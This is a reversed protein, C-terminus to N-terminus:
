HIRTESGPARPAEGESPEEALAELLKGFAEPELVRQAVEIYRNLQDAIEVKIQQSWRKPFRRSLIELRAKAPGFSAGKEDGLEVVERSRSEYKDEACAVATRFDEDAALWEFYVSRSVDCRGAAVHGPDGAEVLELIRARNDATRVTPRGAKGNAM